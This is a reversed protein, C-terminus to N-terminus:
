VGVELGDAYIVQPRDFTLTYLRVTTREEAAVFEGDVLRHAPVLAATKGYMAQARWDRIHIMTDPGVRMDRDPRTHGLSGALIRVMGVEVETVQISRLLAMGATRSVVRDGPVLHEVPMEGDLTMVTTGAPLGANRTDLAAPANAAILAPAFTM